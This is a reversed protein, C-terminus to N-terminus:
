IAPNINLGDLWIGCKTKKYVLTFPYENKPLAKYGLKDVGINSYESYPFLNGTVLSKWNDPESKRYYDKPKM